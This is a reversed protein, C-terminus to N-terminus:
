ENNEYTLVCSTTDFCAKAGYRITANERIHGIPMGYYIPMTTNALVTTIAEMFDFSKQKLKVQCDDLIGFIIASAKELNSSQILQTLMRDLRYPEEGVDEIFVIKDKFDIQYETGVLSVITSLNGGVIIGKAIGQRIVKSEFEINSNKNENFAESRRIGIVKNSSLLVNKLHNITYNGKLTKGVATHFLKTSKTKVYIAQILATIDSFGLLPKDNNKILSYDLYPLIQASGYGGRVCLIAAISKNKYMSHLDDVRQQITGALYGYNKLIDKSHYVEFGLDHLVEITHNLDEETILFGPAVLGIVDGKKLISCM